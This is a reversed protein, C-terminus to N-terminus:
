IFILLIILGMPVGFLIGDLRDLIGGHGPLFNGTDKLKAKRKLFSFFLDGLQCFLSTVFGLLIIDLIQIQTYLKMFIIMVITTFFISGMSGAVTKKPSIKILKPGGFLKGIVFGGIDSAICGFLLIFLLIKSFLFKSLIFFILCFLSIYSIFFINIILFYFLNKFIKKTIDLFEIIALVSLNILSFVLIIKYNFQLLILFFLVSSTIIRKKYKLFM